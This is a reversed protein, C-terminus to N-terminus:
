KSDPTKGYDFPLLAVIRGTENIVCKVAKGAYEGIINKNMDIMKEPWSSDGSVGSPHYGGIVNNKLDKISYEGVSLSVYKSKMVATAIKEGKMNYMM